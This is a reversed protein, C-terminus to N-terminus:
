EGFWFLGCFWLLTDQEAGVLETWPTGWDQHEMWCRDPECRNLTGRIRLAPGGTSLLICFEEPDMSAGDGPERWGSRVEVSLAAEQLEEEILEAVEAHNTGDYGQARLVAKAARSLERGEGEEVCFGHAEQASSISELWAVANREADTQVMEITTTM